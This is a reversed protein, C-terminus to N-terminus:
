SPVAVDSLRIRVVAWTAYGLPQQEGDEDVLIGSVYQTAPIVRVDLVTREHPKGTHTTARVFCAGPHCNDILVSGAVVHEAYIVRTGTTV